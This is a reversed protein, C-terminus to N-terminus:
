REVHLEQLKFPNQSRCLKHRRARFGVHCKQLAPLLSNRLAPSWLASLLILEVVELDQEDVKILESFIPQLLLIDGMVTQSTHYVDDVNLVIKYSIWEDAKTEGGPISKSLPSLMNSSGRMHSLPM